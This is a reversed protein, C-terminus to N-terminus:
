CLGLVGDPCYKLIMKILSAPADIDQDDISLKISDTGSDETYESISDIEETEPNYKIKLIYEKM